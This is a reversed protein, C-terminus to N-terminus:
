EYTANMSDLIDKLANSAKKFGEPGSYGGTQGAVELHPEISAYGTFGRRRFAQLTKPIGGDGEGAPRIEGRENMVADKIHLFEVYEILDLLADPYAEVGIEVFNAPDFIARLNPSDVTTIIDRCREPTDGYIDKENEHLLKVGENEAIEAKTRMRYIVEERYDEPDSGDPIYYSFLRIYETDFTEAMRIATKFEDLHPEFPDTIDIKGIHSGIASVGIERNDLARLIEDTQDETLDLVNTEWVSRLDLYGIGESELVDLQTDLDSDIEDAFGTLTFTSNTM